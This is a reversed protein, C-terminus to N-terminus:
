RTRRGGLLGCQEPPLRRLVFVRNAPGALAPDLRCLRPEDEGFEVRLGDRGEPAMRFGPGGGYCTANCAITEGPAEPGEDCSAQQWTEGARGRASYAIVLHFWGGPFDGSQAAISNTVVVRMREVKQAPNRALHAADYDRAFCAIGSKPLLASWDAATAPIPAGAALAAIAFSSAKVWKM